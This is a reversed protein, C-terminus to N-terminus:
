DTASKTYNFENFLMTPEHKAIKLDEYVYGVDMKKVMYVIPWRKVAWRPAFREKLHQWWDVPYRVLDSKFEEQGWLYGQIHIKVMNGFAKSFDDIEVKTDLLVTDVSKITQLRVKHLVYERVDPFCAIREEM